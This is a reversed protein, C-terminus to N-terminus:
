WEILFRGNSDKFRVSGDRMRIAKGKWHCLKMKRRELEDRPFDRTSVINNGCKAISTAGYDGNNLRFTICAGCEPCRNNWQRTDDSFFKRLRSM